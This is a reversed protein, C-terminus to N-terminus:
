AAAGRAEEVMLSEVKGRIGYASTVTNLNAEGDRVLEIARVVEGASYVKGAKNTITGIGYLTNYLHEFFAAAAVREANMRGRDELTERRRQPATNQPFREM